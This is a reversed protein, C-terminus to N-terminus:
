ALDGAKIQSRIRPSNKRPVSVQLLKKSRDSRAAFHFEIRARAEPKRSTIKEVIPKGKFSLNGAHDVIDFRNGIGGAHIRGKGVHREQDVHPEFARATALQAREDATAGSHRCGHQINIMDIMGIGKYM